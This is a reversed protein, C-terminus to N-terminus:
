GLLNGIGQKWNSTMEHAAPVSSAGSLILEQRVAEDSNPLVGPTFETWGVLEKAIHGQALVEGGPEMTRM